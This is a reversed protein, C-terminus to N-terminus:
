GQFAVPPCFPDSIRVPPLGHNPGHGGHGTGNGNGNGEVNFHPIPRKHLPPRQQCLEYFLEFHKDQGAHAHGGLSKPLELLDELPLNWVELVVPQGGQDEAPRLTLVPRPVDAGFRTALVTVSDGPIDIEVQVGASAPKSVVTDNSPASIPRFDIPVVRGTEKDRQLQIAQAFGERVTFRSAVLGERPQRRLCDPDVRAASPAIEELRPILSFFQDPNKNTFNGISAQALAQDWILLSGRTVTQGAFQIELDQGNLFWVGKLHPELADAPGLSVIKEGPEDHDALSDIDAVNKRDFRVVPYHPPIHEGDSTQRGGRAEVSLIRLSEGGDTPVVAILGRFDLKLKFPM